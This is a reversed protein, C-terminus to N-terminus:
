SRDLLEALQVLGREFEATPGGFGLRVRDPMGFCIGPVLLVGHSDGLARCLAEVGAETKLRPFITVGGQPEPRIWEFRREQAASWAILRDRNHRAQRLQPERLQDAHQVMRLALFEVLPSLHLTLRDRLPLFRALVEPAAICWGFRLGPLGYAKSATGISIAREYSLTPDPLPPQDYTLEAFAADWVLYADVQAAALILQQQQSPTITIGTPNHPFNVAILRTRPSILRALDDLDPAFGREAPLRWRRLTCGISEAISALSHYCPDLVIVEDGPELLTSMTLFIAESSGHTVLVRAPDGSGWRRSIAARLEDSGYSTSDQFVIRDLEDHTIGCIRRLDALSWCAVGSSGLDTETDFYYLRMWDELLAQSFHM